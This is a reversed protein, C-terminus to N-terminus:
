FRWSVGLRVLPGNEVDVRDQDRDDWDNGEFWLRDFAYAGSFDVVFGKPLSFKLGLKLEKQYFFFRDKSDQREYLFYRQHTWDFGTYVEMWKLVSYGAYIIITRPYIYLGRLTTEPTPKWYASALPLGLLLQLNNDPQYAYAVGPIPYDALFDRTNSYNVLFLWYHKKQQVTMLTATANVSTDDYSNFPKDSPSGLTLEGGLIWGRDLKYRYTGGFRIDYLNGPFALGSDPLIAETRVDMAYLRGHFGVEHKQNQWVPTSWIVGHSSYGLDTPQGEVKQDPSYEGEYRLTTKMDGLTPDLWRTMPGQALAPTALFLCLLLNTFIRAFRMLPNM